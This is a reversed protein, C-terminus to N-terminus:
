LSESSSSPRSNAHSRRPVPKSPAAPGHTTSTGAPAEDMATETSPAGVAKGAIAGAILSLSGVFVVSAGLMAAVTILTKKTLDESSSSQGM